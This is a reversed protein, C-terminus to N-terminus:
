NCTHKSISDFYYVFVTQLLFVNRVVSLLGYLWYHNYFSQYDLSTHSSASHLWTTELYVVGLALMDFTSLIACNTWVCFCYLLRGIPLGDLLHFEHIDANWFFKCKSIQLQFDFLERVYYYSSLCVVNKFFLFM